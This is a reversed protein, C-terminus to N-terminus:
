AETVEQYDLACVDCLEQTLILDPNTEKFRALDITYISKKAKLYGTVIKDITGSSINHPDIASKVVVKRQKAEPPYDCEHTVGLVSDGLGLAFAIETASPLFSCIRM